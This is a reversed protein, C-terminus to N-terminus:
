KIFHWHIDRPLEAQKKVLDQIRNEGFFLHSSKYAELISDNPKTKSVAVLKVHGPIEKKLQLIKDAIKM